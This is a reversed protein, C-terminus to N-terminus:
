QPLRLYKCGAETGPAAIQPFTRSQLAGKFYYPHQKLNQAFVLIPCPALELSKDTRWGLGRM